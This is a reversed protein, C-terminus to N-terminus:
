WPVSQMMTYKATDLHTKFARSAPESRRLLLAEMIAIHEQAAFRNREKEDAKDWGFHYHFVLGIAEQFSDFFRNSAARNIIRHFRSDLEPFDLYRNEYDELFARHEKLMRSMSPWFADEDPLQLVKEVTKLEFLLRVEFLEEAYSQTFGELVWRKQPEKRVFDFRSLKILFERISSPSCELRRAIEAESFRKGPLIDEKLILNMFGHELYEDLTQVETAPFYDTSTINRARCWSANKKVVIETNQLAQLTRRATNRSVGLARSLESLNTLPQGMALRDLCANYTQKYLRNTRAM